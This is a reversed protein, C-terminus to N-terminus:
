SIISKELKVFNLLDISDPEQESQRQVKARVSKKLLKLVM